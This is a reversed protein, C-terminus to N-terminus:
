RGRIGSRIRKWEDITEPILEDLTMGQAEDGLEAEAVLRAVNQGFEQLTTAMQGLAENLQRASQEMQPTVTERNIQIKTVYESLDVGDFEVRTESM